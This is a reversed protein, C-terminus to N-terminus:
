PRVERYKERVTACIAVLPFLLDASGRMTLHPDFLMLTVLVCLGIFAGFGCIASSAGIMSGSVTPGAFRRRDPLLSKACRMALVVYTIFCLVFPVGGNWLLWTYGSEIYVWQRFAEHAALRSSPRVGFLWNLGDGLQPWVYTSLNAVRGYPGSWSVPLGTVPDLADLRGAIVPRLLVAALSAFAASCLALLLFRRTLIALAVLAVVLAIVGSVQGSTLAATAFLVAGGVALGRYSRSVTIWGVCLALSMVMVDAFGIPTGITSSARGVLLGREDDVPAYAALLAPVEGLRLAQAIGVTAVVANAALVSVLANRVHSAQRVTVRVMFYVAVLKWMAMAYLVDDPAVARGRAYMWLLPTVSSAGAMALVALDLPVVQPRPMRGAAWGRLLGAALGLWVAMLLLENPRVSPLVAGRGIGVILPTAGVYLYAGWQPRTAVLVVLAGAAALSTSAVSNVVVGAGMAGAIVLLGGAVVLNMWGKAPATVPRDMPAVVPPSM